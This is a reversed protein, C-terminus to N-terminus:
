NIKVMAGQIDVGALGQISIKGLARITIDGQSDVTVHSNQDDITVTHRETTIEIKKFTDTMRIARGRATEILIYDKDSEIGDEVLAVFHGTRSYIARQWVKGGSVAKDTKLPPKDLGNWLGGLVYPHHMDGLEFGILVEDNIEPMFQVGRNPGGGVALVRAWDSAHEPSFWPYKVKVRGLGEPDDNDTVIGIVLGPPVPNTEEQPMLSLFTSPQLASVNFHTTYGQEASYLHTAGTVFYTGSFRHGVASITLAAGANIKPNGGCVGEAEVFGGGLRDATAQALTDAMTQTRIPRDAVLTTANLRFAQQAMAGGNRAEGIKPSVSDRQAQGVIERKKMPDWGRATVGTLQRITTMHPRFESLTQSWQVEAPSGGPNPAECHLTTGRVYLLYGLAAARTQLFTLNTQNTQFVFQHVEPTPGVKASLGVEGAIKQVLDGDTVNQFTRVHRGRALRHLRDFARVLLRPIDAAFEPEIEIIEGDFITQEGQGFKAAIEITKGPTLRADDIWKLRADHLALTAVDPLHLSSEVSINLLDRVFDDPANQGDLKVYFHSLLKEKDAM